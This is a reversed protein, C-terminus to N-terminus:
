DHRKRMKCIFFGDTGHVHPWLTVMGGPVSGTVPLDFGEPQFEPHGQFFTQVTEENEQRRVTCTSYLLVGGPKVCSALGELIDRQIAPLRDLEERPKRRIEPKRRIVGLGSCPVDAIVIDAAGHLGTYPARADMAMTEIVTIGLRRANEEIRKLKKEQLDCSLVRGRNEMAMACAVSKGGPAACADLVTMGPRADAAMAALRAAMDQIYFRGDRFAETETIGAASELAVCGPLATPAGAPMPGPRLPNEHAFVPAQENNAALFGEAFDYGYGAMLEEALWLPHSYRVSLYDATGKGPLEPLNDRAGAIRRLVANVLGAARPSGQTKCLKVGEDVAAFPPVKDLFLIQYASLRLIDRVRPELKQVATTCFSDIYHDLYEQNQLVGMVIKGCLAADKESLASKNLEANLADESRVGNKRCRVLVRFAAQRATDAM